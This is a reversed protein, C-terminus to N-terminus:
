GYSNIEQQPPPPGVVGSGFAPSMQYPWGLFLPTVGCGQYLHPDPGLPDPSCAERFRSQLGGLWSSPVLVLCGPEPFPGQPPM